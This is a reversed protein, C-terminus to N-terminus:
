SYTIEPGQRSSTKATIETFVSIVPPVIHLEGVGHLAVDDV